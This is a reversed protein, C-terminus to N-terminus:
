PSVLAYDKEQQDEGGKVIFIFNRPPLIEFDFYESKATSSQPRPFLQPM